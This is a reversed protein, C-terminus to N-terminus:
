RHRGSGWGGALLGLAFMVTELILAITVLAIISLVFSVALLAAIALDYPSM